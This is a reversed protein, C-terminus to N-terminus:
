KRKYTVTGQNFLPVPPLIKKSPKSSLLILSEAGELTDGRRKRSAQLDELKKLKKKFDLIDLAPKITNSYFDPYKIFTELTRETFRAVLVPNYDLAIAFDIFAKSRNGKGNNLHILASQFRCNAVNEKFQAYRETNDQDYEM